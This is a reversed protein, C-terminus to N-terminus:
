MDPVTVIRDKDLGIELKINKTNNYMSQSDLIEKEVLLNTNSKLYELESQRVLSYDVFESSAISNTFVGEDRPKKIHLPQSRLALVAVKPKDGIYKRKNTQIQTYKKIDINLRNQEIENLFERKKMRDDISEKLGTELDRTIEDTNDIEYKPGTNIVRIISSVIFGFDYGGKGYKVVMFMAKCIKSGIQPIAKTDPLKIDDPNVPKPAFAEYMDASITEIIYTCLGTRKSVEENTRLVMEQMLDKTIDIDDMKKYMSMDVEEDNIDASPSNSFKEVRVM